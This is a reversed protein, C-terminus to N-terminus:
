EHLHAACTRKLQEAQQVDSLVILIGSHLDDETSCQFFLAEAKLLCAQKIGGAWTHLKMIFTLSSAGDSPSEAGSLLATVM